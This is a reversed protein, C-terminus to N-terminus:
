KRVALENPNVKFFRALELLLDPQVARNGQELARLMRLTLTVGQTLYLIDVLEQQTMGKAERLQKLEPAVYLKSAM